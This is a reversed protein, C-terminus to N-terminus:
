FPPYLLATILRPRVVDLMTSSIGTNNLMPKSEPRNATLCADVCEGTQVTRGGQLLASEAEPESDSSAESPPKPVM